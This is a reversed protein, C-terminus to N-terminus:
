IASCHHSSRKDKPIHKKHRINPRRARVYHQPPQQLSKRARWIKQSCPSRLAFGYITFWVRKATWYQHKKINTVVRCSVVGIYGVVLHYYSACHYNSSYNSTHMNRIALACVIVRSFRHWGLSKDASIGRRRSQTVSESVNIAPSDKLSIRYAKGIAHM